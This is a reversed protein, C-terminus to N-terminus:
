GIHRRQTVIVYIIVPAGLMPTVANLPIIGKDGPMLCLLSCLLATAAGTVITYPLLTKHNNTDLIMRSVHPVALGIFAIPGCFATTIATLLGTSLLLLHRTRTINIGLNEAYQNGLLLANLPKILLVSIALGLICVASFYPLQQSSVGNFNGMGWIVYSHVGEATAFFNLLSIASTAVYGIMIGTILLMLNSKIVASLSLILIMVIMAGVFAGAIVSLFSGISISGATITGGGALMVIAVGLSAGSNIGLISPGALPNSFATQLMLGCSALSAGCLTATIAAPLRSEMVIYRWSEKSAPSGMLIDIVDAIPIDVSGFFLNAVFLVVVSVIIITWKFISNSM